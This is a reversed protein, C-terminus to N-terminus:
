LFFYDTCRIAIFTVRRWRNIKKKRTIRLYPSFLQSGADSEDSSQQNLIYHVQQQIFNSETLELWYCYVKQLYITFCIFLPFNQNVLALM